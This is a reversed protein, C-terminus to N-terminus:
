LQGFIGDNQDGKLYRSYDKRYERWLQRRLSIDGAPAEWIPDLYAKKLRDYRERFASQLEEFSSFGFGALCMTHDDGAVSAVLSQLNQEWQAIGSSEMLTGTLIGEFEMPTSVYDFCGDTACLVVCPQRLRITSHKLSFPKDGNILNDMAGEHYLNEFPDPQDSDDRSLQWFGAPTLLYGRSDGANVSTIELFEETKRMLIASITTPFSLFGRTIEGTEERETMKKWMERYSRHLLQVMDSATKGRFPAHTQMWEEMVYAATRSAVFADTQGHYSHRKRAGSGGCGDFVALIGMDECFGYYWCDEGRGERVEGCFSVVGFDPILKEGM